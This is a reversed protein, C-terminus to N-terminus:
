YEWVPSKYYSRANRDQKHRYAGLVAFRLGLSAVETPAVRIFVLNGM